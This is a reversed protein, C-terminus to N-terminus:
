RARRTVALPWLDVFVCMGGMFTLPLVQWPALDFPEITDAACAHSRFQAGCTGRPLKPAILNETRNSSTAIDSDWCVCLM